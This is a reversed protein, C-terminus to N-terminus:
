DLFQAREEVTPLRCTDRKGFLSYRNNAVRRYVWNRLPPPIILLWEAVSYIGGLSAITLLAASSETYIMDGDALVVTGPSHTYTPPLQAQATKGQLPAFRLRRKKDRRVLFDIFRNCLNCYGDFYVTM